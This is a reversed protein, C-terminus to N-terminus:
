RVTKYRESDKQLVSPILNISFAVSLAPGAILLLKTADLQHDRKKGGSPRGFFAISNDDQYMQLTTDLIAKPLIVLYPLIYVCTERCFGSEKLGIEAKIPNM